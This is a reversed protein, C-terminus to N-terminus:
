NGLLGDIAALAQRGEDKDDIATTGIGPVYPLLREIAAHAQRLVIEVQNPDAIGCTTSANPPKLYQGDAVLGAVESQEAPIPNTEMFADISEPSVMLDIHGPAEGRRRASLSAEPDDSLVLPPAEIRRVIPHRRGAEYATIIDESKDRGAHIWACSMPNDDEEAASPFPNEALYERARRVVEPEEREKGEPPHPSPAHEIMRVGMEELAAIVKDAHPDCGCVPWNCDVPEPLSQKRAACTWGEAALAANIESCVAIMLRGNPTAPDFQRTDTRTEYGFSSALREYTDHFLHALREDREVAGKTNPNNM